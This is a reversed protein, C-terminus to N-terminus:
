YKPNEREYKNWMYIGYVIHLVGFGLAWFLIGYGLFQLSILGLALQCYGLYRIESLTYKSANILALGYFLLCGPAIYGVAGAKLLQFLYFGGVMLPVAVAVTVRKSAVGFLPTGTKRSRLWTFFFAFVLSATFTVLAILVLQGGLTETFGIQDIAVGRRYSASRTMGKLPSNSITSSAVWAGGLACIGAAVGSLGSLSIFRSSRDMISRIDKLTDLTQQQENMFASQFVFYIFFFIGGL